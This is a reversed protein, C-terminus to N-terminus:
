LCGTCVKVYGHDEEKPEADVSWDSAKDFYKVPACGASLVTLNFGAGMAAAPSPYNFEGSVSYENNQVPTCNAAATCSELSPKCDNPKDPSDNSATVNMWTTTPVDVTINAPFPKRSTIKVQGYLDPSCPCASSWAAPDGNEDKFTECMQIQADPCTPAVQLDRCMKINATGSSLTVDASSCLGDITINGLRPFTTEALNDETEVTLKGRYAKPLHVRLDAGARVPQAKGDYYVGIACGSKWTDKTCDDAPDKSDPTGPTGGVYAWLSMRAKTGEVPPDMSADGNFTVDDSFDYIKMEITIVPQDLDFLVEINGRNAYNGDSERRGVSITGIKGDGDLPFPLQDVVTTWKTEWPLEETDPTTGNEDGCGATMLLTLSLLSALSSNKM